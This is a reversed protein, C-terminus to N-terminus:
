PTVFILQSKGAVESGFDWWIVDVSGILEMSMLVMMKQCTLITIILPKQATMQGM